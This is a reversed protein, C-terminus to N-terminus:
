METVRAYRKDLMVALGRIVDFWAYYVRDEM